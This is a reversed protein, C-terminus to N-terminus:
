DMCDSISLSANDDVTILFKYDFYGSLPEYKDSNSRKCAPGANWRLCGRGLSNGNCTLGGFLGESYEEIIGGNSSLIWRSFRMEDEQTSFKDKDATFMFYDEDAKSVNLFSYVLGSMWVLNEFSDNRRLSGSTWFLEGRRKIVLQQGNPEWEFTFAGSAPVMNSLCSTLYWSQGTRCNIGLKM